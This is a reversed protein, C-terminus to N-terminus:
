LNVDNFLTIRSAFTILLSYWGTASQVDDSSSTGGAQSTSTATSSSQTQGASNVVSVSAFNTKQGFAANFADAQAGTGVPVKDAASSASQCTSVASPPAQCKDQLQQCIFSSITDINDDSGHPFSDQTHSSSTLPCRRCLLVKASVKILQPSHLKQVVMWAKRSSSKLHRAPALRHM